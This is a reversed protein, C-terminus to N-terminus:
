RGSGGIQKARSLISSTMTLLWDNSQEMVFAGNMAGAHM